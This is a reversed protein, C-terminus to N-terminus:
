RLHREILKAALDANEQPFFHTGAVEEYPGGVAAAQAEFVSHDLASDSGAVVVARGALNSLHQWAPLSGRETPTIDFITAEVEPPCALEVQGDSRDRVGHRLYADLAAAELTDLPPRARYSAAMAARDPWIARRKRTIAAIPPRDPNPAPPGPLVVAEWLLIRELRNPDLRDVLVTVVGGLSQGVARVRAVGIEDLLAVVDDAMSQLDFTNLDVPPDSAGHGCLDIGLCRFRGGLAAIVPEFVGACFGNPHLFLLDPGTGGWDHGVVRRGDPRIVSWPTPPPLLPM